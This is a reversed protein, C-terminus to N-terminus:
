APDRGAINTIGCFKLNRTIIENDSWQFATNVRLMPIPNSFLTGREIQKALCVVSQPMPWSAYEIRIDSSIIILAVFRNCLNVFRGYM